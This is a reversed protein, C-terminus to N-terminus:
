KQFRALHEALIRDVGEPPLLGTTPNVQGKVQKRIQVLTEAVEVDDSMSLTLNRYVRLPCSKPPIAPPPYTDCTLRGGKTFEGSDLATASVLPALFDWLNCAGYEGDNFPCGTASKLTFNMGEHRDIM